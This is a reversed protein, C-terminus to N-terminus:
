LSTYSSHRTDLQDASPRRRSSRNPGPYFLGSSAFSRPNVTFQCWRRPRSRSQVIGADGHSYAEVWIPPISRDSARCGIRAHKDQLHLTLSMDRFRYPARVVYRDGARNGTQGVAGVRHGMSAQGDDAADRSLSTVVRLSAGRGQEVREEPRDGIYDPAISSLWFDDVFVTSLPWSTGM